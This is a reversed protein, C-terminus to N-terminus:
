RSQAAARRRNRGMGCACARGGGSTEAAERVERRIRALEEKTAMREGAVHLRFARHADGGIKGVATAAAEGDHITAPSPVPLLGFVAANGFTKM